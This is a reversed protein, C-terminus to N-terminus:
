VLKIMGTITLLYFLWFFVIIATSIIPAVIFANDDGFMILIIFLSIFFWAFVSFAIAAIVWFSIIM